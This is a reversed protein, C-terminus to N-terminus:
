FVFLSSDNPLFFCPLVDFLLHSILYFPDLFALGSVCVPMSLTSVPLLPGRLISEM